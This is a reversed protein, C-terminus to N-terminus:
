VRLLFDDNLDEILFRLIKFVGVASEARVLDLDLFTEFVWFIRCLYIGDELPNSPKLNRFM